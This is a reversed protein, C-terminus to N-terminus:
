ESSKVRTMERMLLDTEEATKGAVNRNEVKEGDERRRECVATTVIAGANKFTHYFGTFWITTFVNESRSNCKKKM